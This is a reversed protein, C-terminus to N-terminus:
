KKGLLDAAERAAALAEERQGVASLMGALNNLSGALDPTFAEPRARALDRYLGAAERAAALAEERQGVRSLFSSANNLFGAQRAPEAQLLRALTLAITAAFGAAAYPVEESAVRVFRVAQTPGQEIMRALQRELPGAGGRAVGRADLDFLIRGLRNGFADEAGTLGISLWIPLKQDGDPFRADFLEAGLFAAAMRDPQLRALQGSRWWSTDAIKQVIQNKPLGECLGADVLKEITPVNLGDGLVGLALLRGLTTPGIGLRESTRRVRVREREALDRIIAGGEIGFAEKPALVAHVAAAAAFLPLRHLPPGEGL